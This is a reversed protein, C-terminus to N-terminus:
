HKFSAERPKMNAQRKIQSKAINSIHSNTINRKPSAKTPQPCLFSSHDQSLDEFTQELTSESEMVQSAGEKEKDKLHNWYVLTIMEM